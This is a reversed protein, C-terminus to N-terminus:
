SNVWQGSRIFGHDQCHCLLSPSLTLPEWAEVTWFPGDSLQRQALGDFTISGTCAGRWACQEDGPRLPHGVVAGWREVDPLGAYQPNLARDPAWSVYELWHDAGLDLRPATM